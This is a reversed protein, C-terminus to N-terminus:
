RIKIHNQTTHMLSPINDNGCWKGMLTGMKGYSNETNGERIELFDSGAVENCKVDFVKFTLIVYKGPPISITYDCIQDEPYEEPFSPTTLIGKPATFDGGCSGFRVSEGVHTIQYHIM